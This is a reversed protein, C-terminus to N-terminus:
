LSLIMNLVMGRAASGSLTPAVSVVAAGSVGEIGLRSSFGAAFNRTMIRKGRLFIQSLRLLGHQVDGERLM